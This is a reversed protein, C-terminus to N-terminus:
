KGEAPASNSKIKTLPDIAKGQERIEFYVRNGDARAIVQGQSVSEGQSVLVDGVYGYLSDVDTNHEIIIVKGYLKSDTILKITGNATAKVATGAVTEIDIGQHIEAQNEKNDKWGFPILIRGAVPQIMPMTQEPPKVGPNTITKFVAVDMDRPFKRVLEGIIYNFDTEATLLYTIENDMKEGIFTESRHVGYVIAFLLISVMTRKLWGYGAENVHSTYGGDRLSRNNIWHNWQRIM